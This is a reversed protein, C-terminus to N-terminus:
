GPDSRTQLIQECKWVALFTLKKHFHRRNVSPLLTWGLIKKEEEHLCLVTLNVHNWYLVLLFFCQCVVVTEKLRWFTFFFRNRQTHQCLPLSYFFSSWDGTQHLTFLCLECPKTQLEILKIKKALSSKWLEKVICEHFFWSHLLGCHLKNIKLIKIIIKWSCHTSMFVNKM